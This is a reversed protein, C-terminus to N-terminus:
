AVAKMKIKPKPLIMELEGLIQEDTFGRQKLTRAGSPCSAVCTGCGQCLVEQITATKSEADYVAAGYPCTSICIRCGSCLNKNVEAIIPEVEIVGSSLLALAESAAAAGQAVSDPIDKPGQCAGAVFVGKSVTSVPALKPHKELFFGDKDLPVRFLRALEKADKRPEAATALIVMDAEISQVRGLLTDEFIVSLRGNGVEAVEAAKGRIFIVGEEQVKRYFEEYGKGHARIDIYLEYVTSNPLREKILHALKMAYMCCIKSCYTHYNEDRSGVCHIIVITSPTRGDRLIIKGNTPGSASVLREVELGTYVNMYRGYGYRKIVSPDFLDYGIALIIGGVELVIEEPKQDFNVAKTPCFKECVRCVGKTFFLCHESDITYKRPVAQPFMMYIARRNNLGMNFKDPVKSPCRIACLGCGICKSEDVYRPKKIVKVRYNGIYGSVEKVEAYTILTINPNSAVEVMKPTLICAACDLTPFTKELQAMRGGISPEKEVIYVKKGSNAIKLAAEIGAIGGGVILISQKVPVLIKELPQHFRVRNVAASVLLKAKETAKEIDDTVWSVQERINVMQFMYPNLGAEECAKQFTPGHMTPSCAAVVVNTLNYEKIDKKIIEQGPDSCMYPYNRAIVVDELEKVYETLKEVNVVSAINLGCHCIYVGIRRNM